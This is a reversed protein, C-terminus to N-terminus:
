MTLSKVSRDDVEGSSIFLNIRLRAYHHSVMLHHPVDEFASVQRSMVENRMNSLRMMVAQFSHFYQLSEVYGMSDVQHPFWSFNRLLFPKLTQIHTHFFFVKRFANPNAVGQIKVDDSPPRRVGVNEIRLSYVGFLSQL